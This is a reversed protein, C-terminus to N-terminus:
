VLRVGAQLWVDVQEQIHTATESPSIVKVVLEPVTELYREALAGRVPLRAESVFSFDPALVTGPDHALHFRTEAAFSEGLSHETIFPALRWSLKIAVRGRPGGASAMEILEGGVLGYRKTGMVGEALGSIRMLDDASLLTRKTSMLGRSGCASPSIVGSARSRVLHCSM